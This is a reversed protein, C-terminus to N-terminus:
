RKPEKKKCLQNALISTQPPGYTSNRIEMSVFRDKIKHQLDYDDIFSQKILKIPIQIYKFLEM